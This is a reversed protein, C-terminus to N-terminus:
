FIDNVLTSSIICPVLHFKGNKNLSGDVNRARVKIVTMGEVSMAMGQADTLIHNYPVPSWKLGLKIALDM